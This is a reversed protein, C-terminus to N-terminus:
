PTVKGAAIARMKFQQLLAARFERKAFREDEESYSTDYDMFIDYGAREVEAMEEDTLVRSMLAFSLRKRNRREDERWNQALSLRERNSEEDVRM